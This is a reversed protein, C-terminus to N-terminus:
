EAKLIYRWNEHGEYYGLTTGLCYVIDGQGSISSLIEELEGTKGDVEYNESVLYAEKSAGLKTLKRVIESTEQYGQLKEFICNPKINRPDNLFEHLFNGYKKPVGDWRDPSAIFELFRNQKDKVVFLEVIKNLHQKNV